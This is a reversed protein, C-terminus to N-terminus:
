QFDLLVLVVHDINYKQKSCQRLHLFIIIIQSLVTCFWSIFIGLITFFSKQLHYFLVLQEGIVTM